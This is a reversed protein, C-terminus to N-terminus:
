LVVFPIVAKGLIVNQLLGQHNAYLDDRYQQELRSNRYTMWLLTSILIPVIGAIAFMHWTLSANKSADFGHPDLICPSYTCGTIIIGIIYLILITKNYSKNMLDSKPHNM